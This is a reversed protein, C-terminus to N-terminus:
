EQDVSVPAKFIVARHVGDSPAAKAGYDELQKCAILGCAGIYWQEYKESQALRENQSFHDHEGSFTNDPFLVTDYENGSASHLPRLRPFDRRYKYWGKRQVAVFQAKNGFYDRLSGMIHGIDPYKPDDNDGDFIITVKGGGEEIYSQIRPILQDHLLKKADEFSIGNFSGAGRLAIIHSSEQLMAEMRKEWVSGTEDFVISGSLREIAREHMNM